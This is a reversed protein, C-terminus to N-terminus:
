RFLSNHSIVIIFAIIAYIYKALKYNIKVLEKEVRTLQRLSKVKKLIIIRNGFIDENIDNFYESNKEYFAM